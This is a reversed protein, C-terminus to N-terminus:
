GVEGIEASQLEQVDVVLQALMPQRAPPLAVAEGIIESVM